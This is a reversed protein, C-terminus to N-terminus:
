RGTRSAPTSIEHSGLESNRLAKWEDDSRCEFFKVSAGSAPKQVSEFNIRADGSTDEIRGFLVVDVKAGALALLRATAAGDGGNNGPGCLVLISKELVSGRATVIQATAAAANEMLVSSPIGCLETTLRDIERM